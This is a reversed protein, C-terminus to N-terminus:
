RINIGLGPLYIGVSPGYVVPPPYYAPPAYVVPPPPPYYYGRHDWQHEYGRRQDGHHEEHREDASVPSVFLGLTLISAIAVTAAMKSKYAM